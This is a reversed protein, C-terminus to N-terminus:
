GFVRSAPWKQKIKDGLTFGILNAPSAARGPGGITNQVPDEVVNITKKLFPDWWDNGVIGTRSGHRGSLNVSHGPGTENSAHRYRTNTFVAGQTLLRKFGAQFYPAFRDLYDSRM